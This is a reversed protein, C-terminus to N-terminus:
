GPLWNSRSLGKAFLDFPKRYTPCLTVGDFTCNSLITRLLKAKEFPEQQLYLSYARNCLELIYEGKTLYSINDDKYDKLLIEIQQLESKWKPLLRNYDKDTIKGDLKEEIAKELRNELKTKQGELIGVKQNRYRIDKDNSEILANKILEVYKNEIHIAKILHGLKDSLDYEPIYNNGCRGRYGTCHYYIYKNKKIEATIACGCNTCKILGTFAFKRKKQNTKNHGNLVAQVKDFLEKTIIPAHIGSWLSKDWNFDGYYVPDKLIKHINSKGAKNGKRSRFGEDYAKDSITKTSYNGSAYWEFIKKIFFTRDPDPKIGRVINGDFDIDCNVYGIPSYSPFIGQEAKERMGMRTKRSIDNSQKKAAAVEIDIMFTDESSSNKNIIKGTRSFHIEKGYEKILREIKYADFSNRTMRDVCDFIIVKIDHNNKAFEVMEDFATRDERWASESVKWAKVINVSHRSAHSIGLKEQADLSYGSRQEESSVRVYLLAKMKDEM